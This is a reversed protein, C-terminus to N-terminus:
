PLSAPYGLANTGGLAQFATWFAGTANNMIPFGLGGGGGAETYFRGNPLPADGAAAGVTAPHLVLAALVVSFLLRLCSTQSLRM